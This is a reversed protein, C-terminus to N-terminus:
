TIPPAALVDITYHVHQILLLLGIFLTALGTFYKDARRKLCCCFLFVTATHGSFFLDHTIYTGGYFLNTLPDAMPILGKPPELSILGICSMRLLTLLAYSWLLLLALDPDQIVRVVLLLTSAWLLIFVPLSVDRPTLWSLLIDTLLRGTRNNIAEFFFPFCVLIALLLALGTLFKVRFSPIRWASSWRKKLGSQEVM